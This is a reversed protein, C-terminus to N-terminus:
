DGINEAFNTNRFVEDFFGKGASTLVLNAKANRYAIRRGILLNQISNDLSGKLGCALLIERKEETDIQNLLSENVGANHTTLIEFDYGLEQIGRAIVMLLAHIKMAVDSLQEDREYSRVFAFGGSLVLEYGINDYMERYYSDYNKFLEEYLPDSQMTGDTSYMLDNIVRGNFLERFIKQSLSKDIM